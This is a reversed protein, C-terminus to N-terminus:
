ENEYKYLVACMEARTMPNNPNLKGTGDGTMINHMYLYMCPEMAWSAIKDKDAVDLNYVFLGEFGGGKSQIYRYLMTAVEQRTAYLLPNFANTGSIIKQSAAWRVAEAFWDDAKVDPISIAYNVYPKGAMKWLM